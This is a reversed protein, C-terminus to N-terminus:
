TRPADCPLLEQLMAVAESEIRAQDFDSTEARPAAAEDARRPHPQSRRRPEVHIRFGDNDHAFSVWGTRRQQVGFRDRRPTLRVNLSLTETEGTTALVWAEHGSSRLADRISLLTPTAVDARWAVFAARSADDVDAASPGSEVIPAQSPAARLMQELTASTEAALTAPTAAPELGPPPPYAHAPMPSPFLRARHEDTAHVRVPEGRTPREFGRWAPDGFPGNHPHWAVYVHPVPYHVDGLLDIAVIRDYPVLRLIKLILGEDAPVYDTWYQRMAVVAKSEAYAEHDGFPTGFDAAMASMRQHKDPLSADFTDLADWRNQGEQVWALHEADFVRVGGPQDVDSYQCLKWRAGACPEPYRDDQPDRLLLLKGDWGGEVSGEFADRLQKKHALSARLTTASAHRNAQLSLGFFGFLVRDNRAQFLMDELEGRAWLHFERVGRQVMESRFVDRARASVDCAAALVFGHPAKRANLSEGVAKQVDKPGLSKERKCQFIWERPGTTATDTEARETVIPDDIEMGLIDVGADSGSTGRAELSAWPRFDYALARILDEFRHPELAAFPLPNLTRTPQPKTM